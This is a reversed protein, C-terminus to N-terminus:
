VSCAVDVPRVDAVLEVNLMATPAGAFSASRWCGVATEAPDDIEGDIVTATCSAAPLVMVVEDADRVTAIPVFGPPPVRDPVVVTLAELPMAVKALREISM